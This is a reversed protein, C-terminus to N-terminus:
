DLVHNDLNSEQDLYFGAASLGGDEIPDGGTPARYWSFTSFADVLPDLALPVKGAAEYFQAETAGAPKQLRVLILALSSSWPRGPTVSGWPYDESPVSITALDQDIYEVAVFYDGLERQLTTTIHAHNPVAGFRSWREALVARRARETAGPAPRIKFIREWRTLMDTVRRADWQHGLRANCEWGDFVLARAWAFSEISSVSEDDGSDFAAGRSAHLSKHMVELLNKGGYRGGGFRRPYPHYKGFSM